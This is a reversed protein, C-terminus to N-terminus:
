SKAEELTGIKLAAMLDLWPTSLMTEGFRLQPTRCMGSRGRHAHPAKRRKKAM